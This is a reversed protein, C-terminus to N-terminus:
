AREVIVVGPSQLTAGKAEGDCDCGESLVVADQPLAQLQEILEAVTIAKKKSENAM